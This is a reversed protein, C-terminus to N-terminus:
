LSDPNGSLPALSPVQAYHIQPVSTPLSPGKRFDWLEAPWSDPPLATRQTHLERCDGDAWGQPWGAGDCVRRDAAPLGYRSCAEHRSNRPTMSFPSTALDVQSGGRGRSHQPGREREGM